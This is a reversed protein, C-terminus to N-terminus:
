AVLCFMFYLLFFRGLHKSYCMRACMYYFYFERTQFNTKRVACRLATDILKPAALLEKRLKPTQSLNRLASLAMEALQLAGEGSDGEGSQGAVTAEGDRLCPDHPPISHPGHLGLAHAHHQAALARTHAGGPTFGLLYTGRPKELGGGAQSSENLESSFTTTRTADERPTLATASVLAHKGDESAQREHGPSADDNEFSEEEDDDKTATVQAGHREKTGGSSTSERSPLLPWLPTGEPLLPLKLENVLEIMADVGGKFLFFSSFSVFLVIQYL